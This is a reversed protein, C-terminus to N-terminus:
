ALHRRLSELDVSGLGRWARLWPPTRKALHELGERSKPRPGVVEERDLRAEALRSHVESLVDWAEEPVSAAAGEALPAVAREPSSAERLAAAQKLQLAAAVAIGLRNQLQLMVAGSVLRSWDLVQAHRLILAPLAEFVRPDEAHKLAALLTEEIGLKFVAPRTPKGLFRIGQAALQAMVADESAMTEYFAPAVRYAVTSEMVMSRPEERAALGCELEALLESISTNLAKALSMLERLTPSRQGRELRSVNSQPCGLLRALEAQSLTLAERRNRVILGFAAELRYDM